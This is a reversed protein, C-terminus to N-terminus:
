AMSLKLTTAKTIAANAGNYDVGKKQTYGKVVWHAKLRKPIGYAGLKLKFVWRDKVIM